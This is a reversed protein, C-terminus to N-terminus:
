KATSQLSVPHVICTQPSLRGDCGKPAAELGKGPNAKRLADANILPQVLDTVKSCTNHLAFSRIIDICRSYAQIKMLEGQWSTFHRYRLPYRVQVM